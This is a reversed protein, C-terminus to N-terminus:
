KSYKKSALVVQKIREYSIETPLTCDAGLIFKRGKMNSLLNQTYNEIEDYSGDILVGSRDDFGGLITKNKFIKFGDELSYDSDYLGWNVVEFPYESYRELDVNDKCIHLINFGKKNSLNKIIEMERPKIFEEFIEKSFKHKEGGLIAYYIGDVGAELTAQAMNITSEVIKDMAAEIEKRGTKFHENMLKYSTTYSIGSSHSLSAVLGHVTGLVVTNGQNKDVIKKLLDNQTRIKIHNKDYVRLNKWDSPVSIKETNRFENENMIKFLDIDTEKLFNLHAEITKDVSELTDKPFHLWFGTPTYDIDKGQIVNMVREFKTM